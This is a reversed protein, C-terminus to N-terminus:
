VLCVPTPTATIPPVVLEVLLEKEVALIGLYTVPLVFFFTPSPFYDQMSYSEKGKGDVPAVEAVTAEVRVEKVGKALEAPTEVVAAGPGGGTIASRQVAPDVPSRLLKASPVIVTMEEGTMAVEFAIPMMPDMPVAPTVRM